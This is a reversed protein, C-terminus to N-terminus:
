KIFLVAGGHKLRIKLTNDFIERNQKSLNDLLSNDIVWLISPCSVCYSLIAMNKQEKTLYFTKVNEFDKMSFSSITANSLDYGCHLLSAIKVNDKLSLNQHLFIFDEKLILPNNQIYKKALKDDKISLGNIKIDYNGKINEVCSLIKAFDNFSINKTLKVNYSKAENIILDNEFFGNFEINILQNELQFSNINKDNNKTESESNNREINNTYM